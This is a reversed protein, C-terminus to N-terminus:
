VLVFHITHLPNCPQLWLSTKFQTWILMLWLRVTLKGLLMKMKQGRGTTWTTKIPICLCNTDTSARTTTAAEWSHPPTGGLIPPFNRSLEWGAQQAGFVCMARRLLCCDSSSGPIKTFQRSKELESIQRRCGGAERQRIEERGAGM